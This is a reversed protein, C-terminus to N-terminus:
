VNEFSVIHILIANIKPLKSTSVLLEKNIIKYSVFDYRNKEQSKKYIIIKIIM